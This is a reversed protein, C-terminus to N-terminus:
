RDERIKRDAPIPRGAEDYAKPDAGPVTWGFMSGVEMAKKQQNSVGIATNLDKINAGEPLVIPYYGQEGFRLVVPVHNSALETYCHSPLGHQEALHRFLQERDYVYLYFNYDGLDPMCRLYMAEYNTMIRFEWCNETYSHTNLCEPYNHCYRRMDLRSALVGGPKRLQATVADISDIVEETLKESNRHHFWNSWYEKGSTGFDGRLHGICGLEAPEDTTSYCLLQEERLQVKELEIGTM